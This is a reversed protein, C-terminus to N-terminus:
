KVPKAANFRGKRLKARIMRQTFIYLTYIWVKWFFISGKLHEINTKLFHLYAFLQKNTIKGSRFVVSSFDDICWLLLNMFNHNFSGSGVNNKLIDISKELYDMQATLYADLDKSSASISDEHIRFFILPDSILLIKKLLGAKLALLNDSYPSFGAGLQQIGGIGRLHEREFVGYCGAIQLKRSLYNELFQFGSIVCVSNVSNSSPGLELVNRTYSAFVCQPFEHAMLASYVSQLFNPSYLDDDALWTFYRGSSMELLVNMNQIEGMNKTHNVFKIRRDHVDLLESTLTEDVYDNGVIAEFDPFTQGVISSLTEKLM